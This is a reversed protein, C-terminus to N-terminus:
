MKKIINNPNNTPPLFENELYKKFNNGYVIIDTDYISLVASFTPDNQDCVVFRHRYVPFLFFKHGIVQPILNEERIIKYTDASVWEDIFKIANNIKDPNLYWENVFEEIRKTGIYGVQKQNKDLGATVSMFIKTDDPLNFRLKKQMKEIEVNDVGKLWGTCPVIIDFRNAVDTKSWRQTTKSIFIKIWEKTIM